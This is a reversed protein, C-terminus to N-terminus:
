KKVGWFISSGDERSFYTSHESFEMLELVAALTTQIHCDHCLLLGGPQLLQDVKPLNRNVEKFNHTADCFILGYTRSFEHTIVDGKIIDDTYQLLNRDELNKKLLALTGGPYMIPYCYKEDHESNKVADPGLCAAWEEKGEIGFDIIDYIRDQQKLHRLTSAIVASSRGIWPGIELIPGTSETVARSLNECDARNFWGQPLRSFKYPTTKRLFLM